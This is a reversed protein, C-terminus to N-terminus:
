LEHPNFAIRFDPRILRYLLDIEERFVSNVRFMDWHMPILVKAGIDAAVTFADRVSMNGIIGDQERYYNRENVPLIAVDIRGVHALAVLLEDCVSTDGSHYIRRDKFEFVYGVCRACGHGDREITPHAAPVPHVKLDRGLEIWEEQAVVIRQNEIGMDDLLDGVEGPCIFKCSPSASSLPQITEPDCHDMHAHTILVFDADIIQSPDLAIPVMRRRTAGEAKEVSDSLYPDVYAICNGFVFRFGAQGLPTVPIAKMATETLWGVKRFPPRSRFHRQGSM